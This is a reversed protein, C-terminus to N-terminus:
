NGPLSFGRFSFCGSLLQPRGEPLTNHNRAVAPVLRANTPEPHFAALPCELRSLTGKERLLSREVKQSHLKKM